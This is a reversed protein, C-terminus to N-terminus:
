QHYPPIPPAYNKTMLAHLSNVAKPCCANYLTCCGEKHAKWFIRCTIKCLSQDIRDTITDQAKSNSLLIVMMFSLIMIGPMIIVCLVLILLYLTRM